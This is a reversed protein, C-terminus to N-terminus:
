ITNLQLDKKSEDKLRKVMLVNSNIDEVTKKTKNM